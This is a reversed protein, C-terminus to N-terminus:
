VIGGVGSSKLEKIMLENFHSFASALVLCDDYCYKIMEDRLDYVLNHDELFKVSEIRHWDMFRIREEKGM